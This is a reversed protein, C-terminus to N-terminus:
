KIILRRKHTHENHKMEIILSKYKKLQSVYVSTRGSKLITADLKKIVSNDENFVTITVLDNVSSNTSLYLENADSNIKINWQISDVSARNTIFFSDTSEKSIIVGYITKDALSEEGTNEWFINPKTSKIGGVIYGALFSNENIADLNIVGNSFKPLSENVIFESGAGILFPLEIKAKKEILKGNCNSTVVSITKVFPVDDDQTLLNKREYFQAIGGFFVNYMENNISSYVPLTACQYHNFYQNFNKIEKYDNANIRVANLMPLDETEKFVGSFMLISQKNNCDVQPEANYDRKRLLNRDELENIPKVIFTDAYEDIVFSSARNNYVQEFGSGHDAGMPNYRGTFKQGGMLYFTDNIAKLKGGTVQFFDDTAQKFCETISQLNQVKDILKSLNIQTIKNYTIHEDETKSYGYGGICYLYKGRQYFQMNTSSLQEKITNPLNDLGMSWSRKKSPDIVYVKTNHGDLDFTAWPQRRHLGDLRGGVIIWKGQYQGFAFSQIGGFGEINIPALNLSFKQSKVVIALLLFSTTLYIFLSRRM